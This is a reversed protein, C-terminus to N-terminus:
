GVEETPTHECEIDFKCGCKRIDFVSELLQKTYEHINNTSLLETPTLIEKLDGHQMVAIRDSVKTVLAIDHCVFVITLDNEQQLSKLLEIIKAQTIVDLASTPEDLLLIKPTLTLARAIGIRQRQGGSMQKPKKNLFSEDLEVKKLFEIATERKEYKKIMKFNILPECIIDIVKMKPNLASTTDQFLLQMQKRILRLENGRLETLDKNEYIIEGSTKNELNSMIKILTSKGSGSEGVISLFEGKKISINIDNCANVPQKGKAQFVKNLNKIEIITSM